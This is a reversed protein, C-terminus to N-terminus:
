RSCLTLGVLAKLSWVVGIYRFHNWGSVHGTVFALLVVGSLLKEATVSALSYLPTFVPSGLEEEARKMMRSFQLVSSVDLAVSGVYDLSASVAGAAPPMGTASSSSIMGIAAIAFVCELVADLRGARTGFRNSRCDLAVRAILVVSCSAMLALWVTYIAPLFGYPENCLSVGDVTLPNLQWGAECVCGTREDCAGHTGCPALPWVEGCASANSSM